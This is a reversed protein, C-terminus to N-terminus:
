DKKRRLYADVIIQDPDMNLVDRLKEPPVLQVAQSEWGMDVPNGGTRRAIYMRAKSTTREFDGLVDVIEIALGAEEWAEKIANAQMSLGEECTGKPFTNKYGGFANSPSVLWIRGDAEEIIVGAGAHKGVPVVMPKERLNPNIGSVYNWGKKTVPAQDWSKLPVGGLQQPYDGEPVFTATAKAQHWTGPASPESPKHLGVREGKDGKKPHHHEFVPKQPAKKTVATYHPKVFVGDSRTYGAVYSKQMTEGQGMPANHPRGTFVRYWTQVLTDIRAKAAEEAGGDEVDAIIDYFDSALRIAARKVADATEGGMQCREVLFRGLLRETNWTSPLYKDDGGYLTIQLDTAAKLLGDELQAGTQLQSARLQALKHLYARLIGDVVSPTGLYPKGSTLGTKLMENTEPLHQM